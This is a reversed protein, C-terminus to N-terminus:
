PTLCRGAEQELRDAVSRGNLDSRIWAAVERIAARAQADWSGEIDGIVHHREMAEGVLDVLGGAPAAPPAAEPTPDTVLFRRPNESAPPFKPKLLDGVQRGGYPQPKIPPKPTTAGGNGNGRQTQGEDMRIPVDRWLAGCVCHRPDQAEWCPGGCEAMQSQSWLWERRM